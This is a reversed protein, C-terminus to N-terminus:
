GTQSIKVNAELWKELSDQPIDRRVTRALKKQVKTLSNSILQHQLMENEDVGLRKMLDLVRGSLIEKLWAEDLAVFGTLSKMDSRGSTYKLILEDPGPIPYRELLFPSYAIEARLPMKQSLDNKSIGASKLLIIETRSLWRELTSTQLESISQALHTRLGKGQAIEKFQKGSDHFHFICMPLKGENRSKGVMQFIDQFKQETTLWIHDIMVLKRSFFGM